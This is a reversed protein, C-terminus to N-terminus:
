KALGYCRVTGITLTGSAPILRFANVAAVNMYVGNEIIGGTNTGTGQNIANMAFGEGHVTKYLTSSLPDSLNLVSSMTYTSSYWGVSGQGIIIGSDSNNGSFGGLDKYNLTNWAYSSGTDYSSGGNTSMQMYLSVSNASQALNVIRIQYDDYTSSICTTFDLEASTAATHEEVLIFGGASGGSCATSSGNVLVCNTGTGTAAIANGAGDGILANGTTAITGGGAPANGNQGLMNWATGDYEMNVCAPSARFDNAVLAAQGQQKKVAPTGAQGNVKLTAAAMNALDPCFLIVDKAAPVFTPSTSCTYATTSASSAACIPPVSLDHGTAAVLQGSSNTGLVHISAGVAGGNVGAVNPDPYSGSLDGGAPGSPAGGGGGGGLGVAASTGAYGLVKVILVPTGASVTLTNVKLKLYPYFDCCMVGQGEPFSTVPNLTSGAGAGGGVAPTLATYSGGSTPAGDLEVSLASVTGSGPQIYYVMRFAVSGQPGGASTPGNSVASGTTATTFTQTFQLSATGQAFLAGALLAFLCFRTFYRM